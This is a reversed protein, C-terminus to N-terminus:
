TCTSCVSVALEYNVYRGIDVTVLALLGRGVGSNKEGMAAEWSLRSSSFLHPMLLRSVSFFPNDYFLSFASATRLSVEQVSPV